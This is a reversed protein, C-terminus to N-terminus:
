RGMRRAPDNTVGTSAVVGVGDGVQDALRVGVSEVLLADTLDDARDLGGEDRRGLPAVRRVGIRGLDADSVPRCLGIQVTLDNRGAFTVVAVSARRFGLRTRILRRAVQAVGCPLDRLAPV